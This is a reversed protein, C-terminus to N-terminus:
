FSEKKIEYITKATLKEAIPLLTHKISSDTTFEVGFVAPVPLDPNTKLLHYKLENYSDTIDKHTYFLYRSRLSPYKQEAEEILAPSYQFIFIRGNKSSIFIYGEELYEPVVGVPYVKTKEIINQELETGEKKLSQFKPLAFSIIADIDPITLLDQDVTEEWIIKQSKLDIRKIKKPLLERIYEKQSKIQDLYRINRHLQQLYPYLWTRSFGKEVKQLFALVRYKQLEYDVYPEILWNGELSYNM